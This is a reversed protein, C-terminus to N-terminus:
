VIVDFCGDPFPLAAGDAVAYTGAADEDTAYKVLSQSTDLAVVRHGRAVLDRAVRGEGCGIELIRRAARPLISDFFTARFHWYADFGPTRAWRVWNEAEPEWEAQPAM